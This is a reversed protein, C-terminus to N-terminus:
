SVTLHLLEHERDDDPQPSLMLALADLVNERAEERTRGQSLVGPVAPISSIVWGEEGDEYVITLDLKAMQDLNAGASTPRRSEQHM